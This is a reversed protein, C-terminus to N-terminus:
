RLPLHTGSPGVTVDLRSTRRRSHLRTTSPTRRGCPLSLGSCRAEAATRIGFRGSQGALVCQARVTNAAELGLRRGWGITTRLVAARGRRATHPSVVLENSSSYLVVQGRWPEPHLGSGELDDPPPSPPRPPPRAPPHRGTPRVPGPRSQADLLLLRIRCRFSSSDIRTSTHVPAKEASSRRNKALTSRACERGGASRRRRDDCGPGVVGIHGVHPEGHVDPEIPAQAHRCRAIPPGVELAIDGTRLTALQRHSDAPQLDELGVPQGLPEAYQEPGAAPLARNM